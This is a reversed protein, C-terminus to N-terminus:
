VANRKLVRGMPVVDTASVQLEALTEDVFGLIAQHDLVHVHAVLDYAGSTAAAFRVRVDSRLAAGAARIAGPPVRMWLMADGTGGLAQPDVDAEFYLVGADVLRQRRRSVTSANVGLHEALARLQARGDVALLALLAEDFRDLTIPAITTLDGHGGWVHLLEHVAFMRLAPEVPLRTLVPDISPADTVLGCMLESGDTSIRVWRSHDFEAVTAALRAIRDPAAAARVLYAHRGGFGPLTRGCVRVLGHRQLRRFRSAATATSVGLHEGIRAFPALPDALLHLLLRRDVDDVVRPLSVM